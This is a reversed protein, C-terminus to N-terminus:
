YGFITRYTFPNQTQLYQVFPNINRGALENQFAEDQYQNRTREMVDAASQAM